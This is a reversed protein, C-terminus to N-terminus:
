TTKKQTNIIFRLISEVSKEDVMLKITYNTKGDVQGKYTRSNEDTAVKEFKTVMM